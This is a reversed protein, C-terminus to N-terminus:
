KPWGQAHYVREHLAHPYKNLAASGAYCSAQNLRAQNLRYPSVWIHTQSRGSENLCATFNILSLWHALYTLWRSQLWEAYREFEELALSNQVANQDVWVPFHCGHYLILYRFRNEYFKRQINPIPRVLNAPVKSLIKAIIPKSRRKRKPQPDPDFNFTVKPRKKKRRRKLISRPKKNNPKKANQPENENQRKANTNQTCSKILRINPIQDSCSTQLSKDIWRWCMNTANCSCM